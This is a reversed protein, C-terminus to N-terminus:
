LGFYEKANYYGIGQVIQKLKTDDHPFEGHEVWQAVVQAVIRRFYEHRPYSMFSRSDTLMGIFRSLVGASALFILHNEIGPKTDNYWWPCGWQIKGKVGGGQFNGIMTALMMDSTPTLSYLITKPLNNQIDLGDLIRALPRSFSEDSMSDYGTDPGLKNFMRTNNNRQAAMHLQMAWGKASYQKGLWLMIATKYQDIELQTLTAQGAIAKKFIAAVDGDTCEAYVPPDLAHDSALCGAEHFFDIRNSLAALLDDWSKIPIGSASGLKQIYEAFGPAEINMAKSPRWTPSVLPLSPDTKRYNAMQKHYELTDAPDDTTGIQEVKFKKLIGWACFDEKQIIKNCHAYIDAALEGNIPGDYDFYRRMELHTWHYIPNGICDQITNCWHFFKEEDSADGTIYKEEVGSARMLRWKYHDGGLALDTINRFRKNEAIEKPELHCHYDIIPLDKSYEYLKVATDSHLLFKEDMFPKM